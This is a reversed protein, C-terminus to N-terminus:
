EGVKEEPNIQEELRLFPITMVEEVRQTNDTMISIAPYGLPDSESGLVLVAKRTIKDILVIKDVKKSYDITEFLNLNNEFPIRFEIFRPAEIISFNGDGGNTFYRFRTGQPFPFEMDEKEITIIFNLDTILM